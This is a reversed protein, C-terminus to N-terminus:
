VNDCFRETVSTTSVLEVRAVVSKSITELGYTAHLWERQETYFFLARSAVQIWRTRRMSIIPAGFASSRAYDVIEDTKGASRCISAEFNCGYLNLFLILAGYVKDPSRDKSRCGAASACACRAAFSSPDVSRRVPPRPGFNSQIADSSAGAIGASYM